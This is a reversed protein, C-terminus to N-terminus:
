MRWGNPLYFKFHHNKGHFIRKFSPFFRMNKCVDTTKIVKIFNSGNINQKLKRDHDSEQVFM